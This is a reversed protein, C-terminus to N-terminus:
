RSAGGRDCVSNAVGIIIVVTMYVMAVTGISSSLMYEIFYSFPMNLIWVSIMYIGLLGAMSLVLLTVRSDSKVRSLQKENERTIELMHRCGDVVELYNAKNRSAIELNRILTKFFPHPNNVELEKLVVSTEGKVRIVNVASNVENRIIGSMSNAAKDLIDVLNDGVLCYNSIANIFSLLEKDIKRYRAGIMNDVIVKAILVLVVSSVVTLYANGTMTWAVVIVAVIIIMAILSVLEFTVKGKILGAYRFDIELKNLLGKAKTDGYMVRMQKENEERDSSAKEMRSYVAEIGKRLVSKKVMTEAIGKMCMFLPMILAIRVASLIIIMHELNIGLQDALRM